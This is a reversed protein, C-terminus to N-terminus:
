WRDIYNGRARIIFEYNNEGNGIDTVAGVYFDRDEGTSIIESMELKEKPDSFDPSTDFMITINPNEYQYEAWIEMNDMNYGTYNKLNVYHPKPSRGATTQDLELVEKVVGDADSYYRGRRDAFFLGRPIPTFEFSEQVSTGWEDEAILTATNVSNFTILEEYDEWSIKFNIPSEKYESSFDKAIDGNIKLQYKVKDGYEDDITGWVDFENYTYMLMPNENLVTVDTQWDTEASRQDYTEIKIQNTGPEFYDNEIVEDIEYGSEISKWDSYANFTSDSPRKIMIRYDVTDGELDRLTATLNTESYFSLPSVTPDTIIPPQNAKFTTDMQSITPNSGVENSYLIIRYYLDEKYANNDILNYFETETLNQFETKSMRYGIKWTSDGSDYGYWTSNDMSVMYEIKSTVNYDFNISLSDAETVSLVEFTGTFFEWETQTIQSLDGIGNNVFDAYELPKSLSTEVFSSGDYTYINNNYSILSTAM